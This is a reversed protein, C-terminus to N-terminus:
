PRKRTARKRVPLTQPAKRENSETNQQAKKGSDKKQKMTGTLEAPSRRVIDPKKMSRTLRRTPVDEMVDAKLAKPPKEKRAKPPTEKPAKPPSEKPAKPPSGKPAEPPNEKKIRKSTPM